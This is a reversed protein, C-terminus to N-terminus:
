ISATKWLVNLKSEVGVLEIVRPCTLQSAQNQQQKRCLEGFLGQVAGVQGVWVMCISFSGPSGWGEQQRPIRLADRWLLAGSPWKRARIENLCMEQQKAPGSYSLGSAPPNTIQGNEELQTGDGSGTQWARASKGLVKRGSDRYPWPPAM